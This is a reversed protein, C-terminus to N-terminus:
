PAVVWLFDEIENIDFETDSDSNENEFYDLKQVPVTIRDQPPVTSLVRESFMILAEIDNRVIVLDNREVICNTGAICPTTIFQYFTSEHWGENGFWTPLVIGAACGVGWNDTNVILDPVHGSQEGADSDYDNTAPNFTADDFLSAEPYDGCALKYRNLTDAVEDAVMPKILPMIEDYTVTIFQDNVIIDSAANRVPAVIFGDVNSNIYAANDEGFAIDLYNQPDDIEAVTTRSQILGDDRVLEKGPSIIVAVVGNIGTGDFQVTGDVNRITIEGTTSTNINGDAFNTFNSSVAYWLFEGNGDRVEDMGLEAWPFRGMTGNGTSNCGPLVSGPTDSDGDLDDDPCPLNGPGQNPNLIGAATDPYNMAYALLAQKAKKLAQQTKKQQDIKVEQVSLGSIFYSSAALIIVVMMVLLVIGKQKGPFRRLKNSHM